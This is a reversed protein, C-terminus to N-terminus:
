LYRNTLDLLWHRLDHKAKYAIFADDVLSFAPDTYFMTIVKSYNFGPDLRKCVGELISFSRTIRSLRPPLIVPMHTQNMTEVRHVVAEMFQKVDMKMMYERYDHIYNVLVDEDIVEAGMRKLVSTAMAANISANTEGAGTQYPYLTPTATM